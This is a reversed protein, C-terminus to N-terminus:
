QPTSNKVPIKVKTLAARHLEFTYDKSYRMKVSIEGWSKFALYRLELLIRHDPNPVGKIAATIDKMLTILNDIEGQIENELDLMKVIIDEKSHANRTGSPPTHTLSTSAKTALERYEQAQELKADIM